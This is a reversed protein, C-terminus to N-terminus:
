GGALEFLGKFWVSFIAGILSSGLALVVIVLFKIHYLRIMQMGGSETDRLVISFIRNALRISERCALLLTFVSCVTPPIVAVACYGIGQWQYQTYFGALVAGLGLGKLFLTLCTGAQGVACFGCLYPILLFVFLSLFMQFFTPIFATSVSLGAQGAAFDLLELPFSRDQQVLITGYLLGTTLSFFLLLSIGQGRLKQTWAMVTTSRIM